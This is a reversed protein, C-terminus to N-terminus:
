QMMNHHNQQRRNIHAISQYLNTNVTYVQSISFTTVTVLVELPKFYQYVMVSTQRKHKKIVRILSPMLFAETVISM